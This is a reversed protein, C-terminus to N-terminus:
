QATLRVLLKRSPRAKWSWNVTLRNVTLMEILNWSKELNDLHTAVGRCGLNAQACLPMAVQELNNTCSSLSHQVAVKVWNQTQYEAVLEFAHVVLVNCGTVVMLLHLICLYKMLHTNRHREQRWTTAGVYAYLCQSELSVIFYFSYCFNITLCMCWTHLLLLYKM